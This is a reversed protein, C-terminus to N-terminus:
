PAEVEMRGIMGAPRGGAGRGVRGEKGHPESSRYGAATAGHPAPQDAGTDAAYRHLSRL